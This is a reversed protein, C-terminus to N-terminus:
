DPRLSYWMNRSMQNVPDPNTAEPKFSKAHGDAFVFNARGDKASVGGDTGAPYPLISGNAQRRTGNPIDGTVYTYYEENGPLSDWLFVQNPWIFAANGGPWGLKASDSSYKPALVVTGAPQTIATASVAGGQFWGGSQWQPNVIGIVGMQTNDPGYNTAAGGMFSNSAFSIYPGSHGSDLVGSDLGSRYIGQNKTYPLLRPAWYFQNARSWDGWGCGAVDEPNPCYVSTTVWVDDSDALYIQGAMGLQKVNSLEATKKAAAKAQAFVPFLIAALIAIIAIVVLLEILTFARRYIKL